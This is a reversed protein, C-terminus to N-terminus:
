GTRHVEFDPREGKLIRLYTEAQKKLTPDARPEWPRKEQNNIWWGRVSDRAVKLKYLPKINKGLEEYEKLLRNVQGWDGSYVVSASAWQSTKDKLNLLDELSYTIIGPDDCIKTEVRKILTKEPVFIKPFGKKGESALSWSAFKLFRYLTASEGVHVPGGSNWDDYARRLAKLDSSLDEQSDLFKIIDNHDHLLDLVGMRIIWSKDLPIYQDIKDAM